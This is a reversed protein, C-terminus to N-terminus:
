HTLPLRLTRTLVGLAPCRCRGHSDSHLDCRPPRQARGDLCGASPLHPRARRPRTPATVIRCVGAQRGGPRGQQQDRCWASPSAGQLAEAAETGSVAWARAEPHSRQLEGPTGWSPDAM